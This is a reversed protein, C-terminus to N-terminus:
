ARAGPAATSEREIFKTPLNVIEPESEEGGLRAILREAALQGIRYVPQEIVSVPPQVLETWELNDFGIFSVDEPIRLRLRRIAEYAGLAMTNDIAVVATAPDPETLGALTARIASEVSYEGSQFVLRPDVPIGAEVHARLYGTLRASSPNLSFLDVQELDADRFIAQWNSERPERLEAVIAVRRHGLSFLHAVARQTADPGDVLVADTPLQSSARDVMVVPKGTAVADALHEVHQVDAPSVIIGDVRKDLLLDLAATERDSSEDSNTLLVSYGAAEATDTIGRMIGSFFPSHIDACIVGITDTRGSIMSQALRNPRYGLADAVEAVHRRTKESVRGYNGLARSATSVSVGASEAVHQITPSGHKM